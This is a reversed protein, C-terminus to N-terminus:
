WYYGYRGVLEDRSARSVLLCSGQPAGARRKCSATRGRWNTSQTRGAVDSLATRPVKRRAGPLALNVVADAMVVGQGNRAVWHVSRESQPKASGPASGISSRGLGQVVNATRALRGRNREAGSPWFPTLPESVVQTGSPWRRRWKWVANIFPPFDHRSGLAHRRRLAGTGIM